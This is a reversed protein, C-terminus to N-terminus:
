DMWSIACWYSSGTDLDIVFREEWKAHELWRTEHGIKKPFFLFGTKWRTENLNPGASLWKM